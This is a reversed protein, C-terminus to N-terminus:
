KTALVRINDDVIKTFKPSKTSHDTIEIINFGAKKLLMEVEPITYNRARAKTRMSPNRVYNEFSNWYSETLM